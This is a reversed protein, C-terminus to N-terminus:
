RDGLPIETGCLILAEMEDLSVPMKFTVNCHAKLTAANASGGGGSERGPFDAYETGDALRLSIQFDELLTPAAESDSRLTNPAILEVHVGLPSLLLEKITYENGKAGTVCLDHVPIRVACDRYRLTFQLSWEGETLCEYSDNSADYRILDRYTVSYNRGLVPAAGGWSEVLYIQNEPLGERVVELSGGGSGFRTGDWERLAVGQPIAEGDDRTLTYVVKYQYRDGIVAEATLTYGNATTSANVPRGVTDVLETQAGGYLLVLLNSIEGSSAEAGVAGVILVAAAALGAALRSFRRKPRPATEKRELRERARQAAGEPARIHGFAARYRESNTM